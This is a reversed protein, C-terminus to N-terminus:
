LFNHQRHLVLMQRVFNARVRACANKQHWPLLLAGGAGM